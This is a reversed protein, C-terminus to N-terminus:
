EEGGGDLFDGYREFEMGMGFGQNFADQARQETQVLMLEILKDNDENILPLEKVFKSLENVTRLYTDTKVIEIMPESKKFEIVKDM